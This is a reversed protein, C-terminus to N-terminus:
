PAETSELYTEVHRWKFEKTKPDFYAHDFDVAEKQWRHMEVGAGLLFGVGLVAVGLLLVGVSLWFKDYTSVIGERRSSLKPKEGWL